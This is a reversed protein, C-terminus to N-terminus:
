YQKDEVSDVLANLKKAEEKTAKDSPESVAHHSSSQMDTHARLKAIVEDTIDSEPKFWLLDANTIQVMTAGRQSAIESAVKGVRKRFDSLLKDQLENLQLKATQRSQQLRTSAREAMKRYNAQANKDPKKGLQKKAKDLEKNLNELLKELKGNLQSRTQDISKQIEVDSGLARAVVLLDVVLAKSDDDHTFSNCGQLSLMLPLLIAASFLQFFNM